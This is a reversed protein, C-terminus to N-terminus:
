EIFKIKYDNYVSDETMTDFISYSYIVNGNYDMFGYKFGNMYTFYDKKLAGVFKMNDIIINYNNDIIGHRNTKVDRFNYYEIEDDYHTIILARDFTKVSNLKEDLIYTKDETTVVLYNDFTYSNIDVVNKKIIKLNEDYLNFKDKIEYDKNLSDVFFSKGFKNHRELVIKEDFKKVINMNFDYLTDFGILFLGDEEFINTYYEGNLLLEANEDYIDCYFEDDIVKQAFFLVKGNYQRTDVYDYKEDKKSIISSTAQYKSKIQSLREYNDEYGVYPIDESIKKRNLFDYDFQINGRRITSITEDKNYLRTNVDEDFIFDFHDDLYNYMDISDDNINSATSIKKLLLYNQNGLKIKSQVAYNDIKKIFNMNIDYILTEYPTDTKDWPSSSNIIFENFSDISKHNLRKSVKEDVDYYCLDYTGVNDTYATYFIKNKASFRINPSDLVLGIENGNKDYVITRTSMDKTDYTVGIEPISYTSIVIKEGYITKYMFDPNNDYVDEILYVYESDRSKSKLLVDGKGSIITQTDTADNFLVHLSNEFKERDFSINSTNNKDDNKIDNTIKVESENSNEKDNSMSCASVIYIVFIFLTILVINKTKLIM